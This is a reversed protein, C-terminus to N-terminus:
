WGISRSCVAQGWQPWGNAHSWTGAAHNWIAPIAGGVGCGGIGAAMTSPEAGAGTAGGGGITAGGAGTGGGGGACPSGLVGGQSPAVSGTSGVAETVAGAGKPWGGVAPGM